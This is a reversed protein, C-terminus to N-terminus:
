LVDTLWPMYSLQLLFPACIQNANWSYLLTCSLLVCVTVSASWNTSVHLVVAAFFPASTQQAQWSYQLTCSLLMHFDVAGSQLQKTQLQLLLLDPTDVCVGQMNSASLLHVVIKCVPMILWSCCCTFPCQFCCTIFIPPWLKCTLPQSLVPSLM